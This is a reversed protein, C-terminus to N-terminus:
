LMILNMLNTESNVSLPGLANKIEDLNLDGHLHRFFFKYNTVKSSFVAKTWCITFVCLSIYLNTLFTYRCDCM